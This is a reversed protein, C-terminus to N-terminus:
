CTKWLTGVVHQCTPLLAKYTVAIIIALPEYNNCQFIITIVIYSGYIIGYFPLRLIGM